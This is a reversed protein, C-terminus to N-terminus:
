RNLVCQCTSSTHTTIYIYIILWLVSRAALELLLLKVELWSFSNNFNSILFNMLDKMVSITTETNLEPCLFDCSKGIEQRLDDFAHFKCTSNYIFRSSEFSRWSSWTEPFKKQIMQFYKTEYDNLRSTIGNAFKYAAWQKEM